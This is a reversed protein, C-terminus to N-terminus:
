LGVVKLAYMKQDAKRRCKFVHSFSGEGLQKNGIIDVDDLSNLM